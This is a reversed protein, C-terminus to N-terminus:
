FAPLPPLNPHLYAHHDRLIREAKKSLGIARQANYHVPYVLVAGSDRAFYVIFAKQYDGFHMYCQVQAFHDAPIRNDTRIQVLKRDITSKIELLSNGVRVDNVLKGDTWEGDTHGRFMYTGDSWKSWEARVEREGNPVILGRALLRAKINAETEYGLALRQRAEPGPEDTGHILERLLDDEGRNIQSMGLYSRKEHGGTLVTHQRIATEIQNATM